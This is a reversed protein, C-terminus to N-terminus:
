KRRRMPYVDEARSENTAGSSALFQVLSKKKPLKGRAMRPVVARDATVAFRTAV